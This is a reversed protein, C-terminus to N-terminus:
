VGIVALNITRGPVPNHAAGQVSLGLVVLAPHITITLTAGNEDKVLSYMEDGDGGIIAPFTLPTAPFPPDFTFNAEGSGDTVASYFEVRKTAMFVTPATQQLSRVSTM